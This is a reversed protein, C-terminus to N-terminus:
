GLTHKFYIYSTSWSLACSMISQFGFGYSPACYCQIYTFLTCNKLHQQGAISEMAFVRGAVMAKAAVVTAAKYLRMRWICHRKGCGNSSLHKLRAQEGAERKSYKHVRIVLTSAQRLARRDLKSHGHATTYLLDNSVVINEHPLREM